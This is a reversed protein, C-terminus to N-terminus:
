DFTKPDTPAVRPDTKLMKRDAVTIGDVVAGVLLRDASGIRSDGERLRIQIWDGTPLEATAVLDDVSVIKGDPMREPHSVILEIGALALGKFTIPTAGEADGAPRRLLQPAIATSRSEISIVLERTGDQDEAQLVGPEPSEGPLSVWDEPLRVSLPGLQRPASLLIPAHNRSYTVLEALGLTGGLIIWMLTQMLLRRWRDNEWPRAVLANYGRFPLFGSHHISFPFSCTGEEM